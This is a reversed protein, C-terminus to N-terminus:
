YNCNDVLQAVRLVLHASNRSITNVNGSKWTRETIQVLEDYSQRTFNDLLLHMKFRVVSRSVVFSKDNQQKQNAETSFDDPEIRHM